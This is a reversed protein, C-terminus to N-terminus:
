SSTRTTKKPFCHGLMCIGRSLSGSIQELEKLDDESEFGKRFLFARLGADLNEVVM